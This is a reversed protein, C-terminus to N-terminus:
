LDPTEGEDPEIDSGGLLAAGFLLIGALLALPVLWVEPYRFGRYATSVAAPSLRSPSTSASPATSNTTTPATGGTPSSTGATSELGQTDTELNQLGQAYASPSIDPSTSPAAGNTTTTTTTSQTAPTTSTSAATCQLAQEMLKTIAPNQDASPLTKVVAEAEEILEQEPGLELGLASLGLSLEFKNVAGQLTSDVPCTLNGTPEPLEACLQVFPQLDPIVENALSKLSPEIEPLAFIVVLTADCAPLLVPALMGYIPNPQTTATTSGASNAALPVTISTPLAPKITKAGEAPLATLLVAALGAPLTALTRLLM